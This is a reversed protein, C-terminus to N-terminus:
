RVWIRAPKVADASQIARRVFFARSSLAGDRPELIQVRHRRNSSSSRIKTDSGAYALNSDELNPKQM